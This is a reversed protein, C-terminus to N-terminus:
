SGQRVLDDDYLTEFTLNHKSEERVKLKFHKVIEEDASGHWSQYLIPTHDDGTKFCGQRLHGEAMSAFKGSIFQYDFIFVLHRV